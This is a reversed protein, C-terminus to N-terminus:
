TFYTLFSNQNGYEIHRKSFEMINVIVIIKEEQIQIFRQIEGDGIISGVLLNRQIENLRLFHEMREKVGEIFRVHTRIKITVIKL